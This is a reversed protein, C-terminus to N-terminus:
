DYIDKVCRVYNTGSKMYGEVKGTILSHEADDGHCFCVSWAYSESDEQTKDETASWYFVHQQTEDGPHQQTTSPLLGEKLYDNMVFILMLERQTPLRWGEGMDSCYRAADDWPVRKQFDPDTALPGVEFKASVINSADVETHRPTGDVSWDWEVGNVTSTKATRLYESKVGGNSDRSVIVNSGGKGGQVYPYRFGTTVYKVGCLSYTENAQAPKIEGVGMNVFWRILPNDASTESLWFYAGAFVQKDVAPYAWALMMDEKAPVNWGSPLVMNSSNVQGNDDAAVVMWPSANDTYDIYNIAEFGGDELGANIRTDMRDIGEITVTVTYDTNRIINYDDTNNEGLYVDYTVATALEGSKYFGKIRIFTCYGAQGAPMMDASSKYRQDSATGTGRGNEPLYWWFEDKGIGDATVLRGSLGSASSMWELDPWLETVPTDETEVVPYDVPVFSENVPPYVPVGTGPYFESPYRYYYLMNPVNMVQVSQVAFAEQKAGLGAGTRLILNVKAVARKMPIEGITGSGSSVWSGSMIIGANQPVLDSEYAVTMSQAKVFDKNVNTASFLTSNGTNAIFLVEDPTGLQVEIMYKGDELATIDQGSFYRARSTGGDALVNGANDLPIVWVDRITNEYEPTRDVSKVYVPRSFDPSLIIGSVGNRVSATEKVCSVASLGAIVAACFMFTKTIRDM